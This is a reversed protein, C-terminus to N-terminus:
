CSYANSTLHLMFTLLVVSCNNIPNVKLKTASFYLEDSRSFLLFSFFSFRSTFFVSFGYFCRRSQRNEIKPQKDCSPSKNYVCPHSASLFFTKMKNYIHHSYYELFPFVTVIETLLFNCFLNRFRFIM